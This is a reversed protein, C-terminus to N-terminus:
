QSKKTVELYAPNLRVSTTSFLFLDDIGTKENIRDNTRKVAEYVKHWDNPANLEGYYAVEDWLKLLDKLQWIKKKPHKFMLECIAPPYTADKKFRIAEDAFFITRTKPDYSAPEIDKDVVATREGTTEYDIIIKRLEGLRLDFDYLIDSWAEENPTLEGFAPLTGVGQPDNFQMKYRAKGIIDLVSNVDSIWNNVYTKTTGLTEATATHEREKEPYHMSPMGYKGSTIVPVTNGFLRNPVLAEFLEELQESANKGYEFLQTLKDVNEKM